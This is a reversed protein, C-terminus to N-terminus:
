MTLLRSEAVLDINGIRKFLQVKTARQQGILKLNWGRLFKRLGQLCGHWIDLSYTGFESTQRLNMWRNRLLEEFGETLMWKSEFYFYKPRSNGGEGSDLILPTHDSGYRAKAWAFYTPYQLEWSGTALIMDLKILIPCRQKNSWTFKAGSVFIERLHLDGIFENFMEMLRPDGQGKNREKNNRIM